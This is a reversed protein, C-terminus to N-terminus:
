ILVESVLSAVIDPREMPLFHGTEPIVVMTAQDFQGELADLFPKTHTDSREGAVITVPM